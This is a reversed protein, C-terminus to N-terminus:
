SSGLMAHLQRRYALDCLMMNHTMHHKMFTLPKTVGDLELKGEHIDDQAIIKVKFRGAIRQMAKNRYLCNVYIRKIGLGHAWTLAVDFLHAGVGHLRLSDDVTLGFEIEDDQDLRSAHLFALINFGSQDFVVFVGDHRLDIGDVYNKLSDDSMTGFFRTYRDDSPLKVLHAVLMRRIDAASTILTNLATLQVVQMM